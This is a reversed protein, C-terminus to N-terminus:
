VLIENIKLQDFVLALLMEISDLFYDFNMQVILLHSQDVSLRNIMMQKMPNEIYILQIYMWHVM